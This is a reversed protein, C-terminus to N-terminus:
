ANARGSREIHLLLQPIEIASPDFEGIRLPAGLEDLVAGDGDVVVLLADVVTPTLPVEPLEIVVETEDSDGTDIPHEGTRGIVNLELNKSPDRRNIMWREDDGVPARLEVRVRLPEGRRRTVLRGCLRTAGGPAIHEPDVVVSVLQTHDQHGVRSTVSYYREYEAVVDMPAGLRRCRGAEMWLVTDAIRRALAMQHTILVLACGGRMLEGMKTLTARQFATDGVTLVEDVMLLEPESHLAASLGLRAVMGASYHKVPRDFHAGIGSFEVIDPEMRRRARAGFGNLALSIALNERGTLDPEFGVGLEILGTTRRTREIRGSTPDTIGAVLRLLTSKGAGNAGIVVVAEGRRVELDLDVVAPVVGAATGFDKSVAECVLVEDAM